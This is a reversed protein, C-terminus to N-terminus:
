PEARDPVGIPLPKENTQDLIPGGQESDKRLDLREAEFQELESL